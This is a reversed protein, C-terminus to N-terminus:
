SFNEAPRDGVLPLGPEFSYVSLASFRFYGLNTRFHQRIFGSYANQTEACISCYLQKLM